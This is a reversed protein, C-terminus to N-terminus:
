VLMMPSAPSPTHTDSNRGSIWVGLEVPDESPATDFDQKGLANGANGVNGQAKKNHGQRPTLLSRKPPNAGNPHRFKGGQIKGREASWSRMEESRRSDGKQEQPVEEAESASADPELRWVLM